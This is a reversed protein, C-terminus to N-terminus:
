PKSIPVPPCLVRADFPTEHPRWGLCYAAEVALVAVAAVERDFRFGRVRAGSEPIRHRMDLLDIALADLSWVIATVQPLDLPDHHGRWRAWPMTSGALAHMRAAVVLAPVTYPGSETAPDTAIATAIRTIHRTVAVESMATLFLEDRVAAFKPAPM